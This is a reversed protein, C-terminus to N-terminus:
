IYMIEVVSDVIIARERHNKKRCHPRRFRTQTMGIIELDEIRIHVAVVHKRDDNLM